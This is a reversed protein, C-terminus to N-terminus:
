NTGDSNAIKNRKRTTIKERLSHLENTETATPDGLSLETIVM